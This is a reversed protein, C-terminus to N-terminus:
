APPPLSSWSHAPLLSADHTTAAPSSGGAPLELVLGEHAVVAPIGTRGWRAGLADLEDDSREWGHHFLAVRRAGAAAGLGLAYEAAAHGLYGLEPLEAATVQADHVLLDVGDALAMAAEHHAGLGAPGEGLVLPDHDSLYAMSSRGDEVRFGFTRGGKHPIELALVSFGELTHRGAELDTFRWGDGLQAPRIPFTPPSMMRAILGEADGDQAPVRVDVRSGPRAGARFFPMGCVHDWHLHGLLVTGRFPEDGLLASLRRLGTGADLVLSPAEQGRSLALCSTHGGYRVFAAGAAPMSGRVGCFAVKM